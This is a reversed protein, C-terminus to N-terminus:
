RLKLRVPRQIGLKKIRSRLSSPALGLQEAAGGSGEIRWYTSALAQLIHQRKFDMLGPAPKAPSTATSPM